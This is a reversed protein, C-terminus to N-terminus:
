ADSSTTPDELQQMQAVYDERVPSFTDLVVVPGDVAVARHPVNSPILYLTGREIVRTEEGITLQLRGEIVTGGQEHPHHHLPIEAGDEMEVYSLMLNQGGPSRLRCGPAPEFFPTSACDFFPM